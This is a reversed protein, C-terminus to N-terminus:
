ELISDARPVHQIVVLDASPGLGQMTGDKPNGLFLCEKSLFYAHSFPLDYYRM